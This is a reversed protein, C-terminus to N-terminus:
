QMNFLRLDFSRMAGRAVFRSLLRYRVFVFQVSLPGLTLRRAPASQPRDCGGSSHNSYRWGGWKARKVAIKQQLHRDTIKCPRPRGAHALDARPRRRRAARALKVPLSMM